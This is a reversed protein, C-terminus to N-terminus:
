KEVWHNWIETLANSKPLNGFKAQKDRRYSFRVSSSHHFLVSLPFRGVRVFGTATGIQGGYIECPSAQSRVRTTTETRGNFMRGM